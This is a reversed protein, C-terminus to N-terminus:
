KMKVIFTAFTIETVLHSSWKSLIQSNVVFFFSGIAFFIRFYTEIKGFVFYVSLIKGLVEIIKGLHRFKVIIEQRM